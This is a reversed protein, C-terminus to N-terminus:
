INKLDKWCGFSITSFFFISLVKLIPLYTQFSHGSLKFNFYFLDEINFCFQYIFLHLIMRRHFVYIWYVFLILFSTTIPYMKAILDFDIATYYWYINHNIISSIALRIQGFIASKSMKLIAYNLYQDFHHSVIPM